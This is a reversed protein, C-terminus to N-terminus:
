DGPRELDPVGHRLAAILARPSRPLEGCAPCTLMARNVREREAAAIGAEFAALPTAGCVAIDRCGHGRAWADAADRVAQPLAASLGGSHGQAERTDPSVPVVRSDGGSGARPWGCPLSRPADEYGEDDPRLLLGHEYMLDRYRQPDYDKTGGGAQRWLTMPDPTTSM